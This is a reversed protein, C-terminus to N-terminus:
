PVLMELPTGRRYENSLLNSQEISLDLCSERMVMGQMEM